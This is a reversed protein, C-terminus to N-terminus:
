KKFEQITGSVGIESLIGGNELPTVDKNILKMRNEKDSLSDESTLSIGRYKNNDKSLLNVYYELKDNSRFIVIYSKNTDYAIGDPDKNVDNTGLYGLTVKYITGTAPKDLKGTAVKTKALTILKTADSLYTERKNKELISTINPIAILMVISLLVLVGLLEILTFGKKNM